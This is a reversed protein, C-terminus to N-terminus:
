HLPNHVIKKNYGKFIYKEARLSTFKWKRIWVINSSCIGVLWISVSSRHYLSNNLIFGTVKTLGNGYAALSTVLKQKVWSSNNRESLFWSDLWYRGRVHRRWAMHLFIAAMGNGSITDWPPYTLCSFCYPNMKEVKNNSFM